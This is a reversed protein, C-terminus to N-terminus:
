SLGAWKGSCQLLSSVCLDGGCWFVVWVWRVGAVRVGFCNLVSTNTHWFQWSTCSNLVSWWCHMTWLQWNTSRMWHTDDLLLGDDFDRTSLLFARVGRRDGDSCRWCTWSALLTTRRSDHQLRNSSSARRSRGRSSLEKQTTWCRCLLIALFTRPSNLIRNPNPPSTKSVAALNSFHQNESEQCYQDEKDSPCRNCTKGHTAIRTIESFMDHSRKWGLLGSNPCTLLM